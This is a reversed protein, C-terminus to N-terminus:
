LSVIDGVQVNKEFYVVKGRSTVPFIESVEITCVFTYNEGERRYVQLVDGQKIGHESGMSLLVSSAQVQLIVGTSIEGERFKTPKFKLGRMQENILMIESIAEDVYDSSGYQEIVERCRHLAENLLGKQRANRAIQMEERAKENIRQKELKEEELAILDNIAIIENLAPKSKSTAPLETTIKQLEQLAMDYSGSQKLEVARRFLRDAEQEMKKQESETMSKYIIDIVTRARNMARDKLEGAEAITYVTFYRSLAQEYQGEKELTFAATYTKEAIDGLNVRNKEQEALYLISKVLKEEVEMGVNDGIGQEKANNIVPLIKNLEEIGRTYNQRALYNLAQNYMSNLQRRFVMYAQQQAVISGLKEEAEKLRAQEERLQAQMQDIQRSYTSVERKIREERAQLEKEYSSKVKEIELRIKEREELFERQLREKEREFAMDVDAVGSAAIRQRAEELKKEFEARLKEERDRLIKDQNAEFLEKERQLSALRKRADELKKRQEQIKEESRRRIERIVEEEVGTVSGEVTLGLERERFTFFFFLFGAAVLTLIAGNVILPLLFGKKESHIPADTYTKKSRKIEEEINRFVEEQSVEELIKGREEVEKSKAQVGSFDVIEKIDDQTISNEVNTIYQLDLVPFLKGNQKIYYKIPAKIQQSKVKDMGRIKLYGVVRDVTFGYFDKQNKVFLINEAAGKGMQPLPIYDKLGKVEVGTELMFSDQDPHKNILIKEIQEPEVALTYGNLNFCLIKDAM